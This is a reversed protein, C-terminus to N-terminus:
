RPLSTGCPLYSRLKFVRRGSMRHIINEDPVEVNIAYDIKEGRKEMAAELSEAQPITRLFVTWCTVTQM